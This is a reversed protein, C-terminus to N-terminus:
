PLGGGIAIIPLVKLAKVIPRAQSRTFGARCLAQELERPHLPASMEDLLELVRQRVKHNEGQLRNGVSLNPPARRESIASARPGTAASPAAYRQPRGRGAARRDTM